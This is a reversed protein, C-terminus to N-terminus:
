PHGTQRGDHIPPATGDTRASQALVDRILVFHRHVMEAHSPLEWFRAAAARGLAARAAEDTLLHQLQGTLAAVDGPAFLLGSEGDVIQEATGFTDSSIIPLGQSLAELIVRPYSENHSAFVFIDAARYWLAPDPIVPLIHTRAALGPVAAIAARLDELYGSPKAGVLALRLGGQLAAPLAAVAAVIDAQAKRPNISGVSLVLMGDEPLGLLRRAAARGTGQQADSGALDIGNPILTTRELGHRDRWLTRTRDSVFVVRRTRRLGARCAEMVPAPGFGFGVHAEDSERIITLSPVGAEEALGALGLCTATNAVVLDIGGDRLAAMFRAAQAAASEPGAEPQPGTVPVGAAAYDQELPGARVAFLVPDVPCLAKLGLVTQLLSAPAGEGQELNHSVFMVKLRRAPLLGGRPLDGIHHRILSEYRDRTAADGFRREILAQMADLYRLREAPDSLRDLARDLGATDHVIAHDMGGARLLAEAEPMASVIAPVGSAIATILRNASKLREQPSHALVCLSGARLDRVFGDASWEVTAAAYGAFAPDSGAVAPDRFYGRRSILRMGRVTQRMVHDIMWRAADFNGRGENGFWVVPGTVPSRVPLRQGRYDIGDPLFVVPRDLGLALIARKLAVTSAVIVTARRALQFFRSQAPVGAIIRDDEFYRDCVDYIVPVDPRDSLAQWTAESALQSVVVVDAGGLTGDAIGTQMGGEGAAAADGSMLAAGVANSDALVAVPQLCRLRSSAFDQAPTWFPVFRLQPLGATRAPRPPALARRFLLAARRIDHHQEAFRRGAARMTHRLGPTDRLRAIQRAIDDADRTCYLLGEGEAIREAHFGADHTTIVPVGQALAEMIVNSCGEKDPGVPHVLCDIRGYFEARMADRPIKVGGRGFQVLPVDLAACAQEALDLGKIRRDLATAVSGAFGATFLAGSRDAPPAWDALDLANPVLHVNPHLPSLLARLRDNLVIVADFVAIDTALRATDDGYGLQLPRVGGVRLINRRGLLGRMRFVMIDFYVAIDAGAATDDLVHDFEPLLASLARANNGYAWDLNDPNMVWNLVPKTRQGAPRAVRVPQMWRGELRGHRLYHLLPNAGAEAVDSNLALYADADFRPSPNRGLRAGLWLYHLAPDMGMEAVDPNEALYWAADFLDSQQLADADDAGESSAGDNQTGDNQAAGM